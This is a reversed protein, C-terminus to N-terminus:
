FLSFFSSLSSLLFSLCSISLILPSFISLPSPFSFLLLVLVFRLICSEQQFEWFKSFEDECHKISKIAVPVYDLTGRYVTGFSGEGIIDGIKLEDDALQPLDSFALDPAVLQIPVCRSYSPIQNCFVYSKGSTVADVCEIYTFLYPQQTGTEKSICHTCPILRNTTEVLRPYYGELLTEVVEIVHRFLM